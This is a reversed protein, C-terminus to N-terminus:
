LVLGQGSQSEFRLAWWRVVMINDMWGNDISSITQSVNLFCSGIEASMQHFAPVPKVPLWYLGMVCLCVVMWVLRWNLTELYGLLLRCTHSSAPPVWASVPQVPLCFSWSEFQSRDQQSPVTSVLTDGHWWYHYDCCCCYLGTLNSDM